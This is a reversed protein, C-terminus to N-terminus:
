AQDADSGAAATDRAAAQPTVDRFATVIRVIRGDRGKVPMADMRLLHLEGGILCGLVSGTVMSGLCLAKVAPLESLALHGGGADFLAWTSDLGLGALGQCGLLGRASENAYEVAGDPTHSLIGVELGSLFDGYRMLTDIPLPLDTLLM